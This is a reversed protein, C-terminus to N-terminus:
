DAEYAVNKPNLQYKHKHTTVSLNKDLRFTFSWPHGTEKPLKLLVHNVGAKFSLKLLREGVGDEQLVTDVLVKEGNCFIEAGGPGSFFADAMLPQESTINCYAYVLSSSPVNYNEDLDIIGGDQSAFKQWRYTKGKYHTFDGPVPPKNYADNESYLFAPLKDSPPFPFPGGLMWNQFYYENSERINLRVQSPSPLDYQKDLAAIARALNASLARLDNIRREYSQLVVDLWYPQNERLWATRFREKLQQHRGELENVVAYAQRLVEGAKAPEGGALQRTNSYRNAVHALQIRADVILRYQDIAFQLAAVDAMHRKANASALLRDAEKIISLAAKASSNNVILQQGSDPIMKQRWVQDNLNYTIPLARLEMLKDLAKVYGGNKTGYAAWEYRDDFSAEPKTGANWSKDAAVYVGYWDGSFLYTGGDDWITTIVGSAKQKEADNVFGRINAKAMVMDPFMRYSNLIGPCVMYTLGRKKFPLIWQDYGKKDGYEWTLYVVDKPLMDLVEEHELAVDGWMMMKKNHRKLITYLFRLHDAYFRAAGVSDIYKKSKGKTLDFTEDCNVNFYPSGFADCLEGIVNELFARAKPDLPSVLTSTEGMSKYQPLALIKEFHGFSQFSGILQLHHKAAYASLERIQPITLKGSDPAFDPHSYPQVVHEIYFSLGNIKLESMREIQQKIHDVTSIPGRSIDDYIVRLPFSPWDAIVIEKDWNDRILQKLSQLGYFLGTETNAAIIRERNTLLLIYGERGIKEVSSVKNHVLADFNKNKGLLGLTIRQAAKGPAQNGEAFQKWHEQLNNASKKDLSVFAFRTNTSLTITAQGQQVQQPYPLVPIERAFSSMEDFLLVLALLVYCCTGKM